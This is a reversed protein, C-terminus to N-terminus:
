KRTTSAFTVSGESNNATAAAKYQEFPTPPLYPLPTLKSTGGDISWKIKDLTCGDVLTTEKRSQIPNAYGALVLPIIFCERWTLWDGAFFDKTKSFSVGGVEGAYALAALWYTFWERGYKHQATQQLTEQSAQSPQKSDPVASLKRWYNRHEVFHTILDPVSVVIGGACAIIFAFLFAQLFQDSRHADPWVQTAVALWGAGALGAGTLCITILGGSTNRENM